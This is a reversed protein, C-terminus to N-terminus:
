MAFGWWRTAVDAILELKRRQDVESIGSFGTATSLALDNGDILKAARDVDADEFVIAPAHGGLEMTARKMHTGALAAQGTRLELYMFSDDDHSWLDSSCM